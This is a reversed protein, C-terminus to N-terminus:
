NQMECIYKMKTSCHADNLMGNYAIQGCDEGGEGLGHETWDDPQGPSWHERNMTYPTDDAWRWQGTNQDTLGVWYDHPKAFNTVFQEIKLLLAGKEECYDKAKTWNMTDHSFLYCSNRFPIWDSETCGPTLLDIYALSVFLAFHHQTFSM